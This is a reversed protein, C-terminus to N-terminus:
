KYRGLIVVNKDFPLPFFCPCFVRGEMDDKKDADLVYSHVAKVFLPVYSSLKKHFVRM